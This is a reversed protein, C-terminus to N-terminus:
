KYIILIRNVTIIPKERNKNMLKLIIKNISIQYKQYVGRSRHINYRYKLQYIM